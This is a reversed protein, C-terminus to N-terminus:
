ALARPDDSLDDSLDDPDIEWARIGRESLAENLTTEETTLSRSKVVEDAGLALVLDGVIRIAEDADRAWHVVGGARQVTAELELLYHDLHRLVREKLARGAERLQKWPVYEPGIVSAPTWGGNGPPGGPRGARAIVDGGSGTETFLTDNFCTIFLAVRSPATSM